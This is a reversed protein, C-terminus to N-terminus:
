PGAETYLPTGAHERIFHAVQQFRCRAVQVDLLPVRHMNFVVDRGTNDFRRPLRVHHATPRAHEESCANVALVAGIVLDVKEQAGFVQLTTRLVNAGHPLLLATGPFVSGAADGAFREVLKLTERHGTLLSM